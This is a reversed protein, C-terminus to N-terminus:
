KSLITDTITTMFNKLVDMTVYAERTPPHQEVSHPNVRSSESADQVELAVLIDATSAKDRRSCAQTTDSVEM